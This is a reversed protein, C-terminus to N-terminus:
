FQEPPNGAPDPFFPANGPREPGPENSLIVDGGESDHVLVLGIAQEDVRDLDLVPRRLVHELFAESQPSDLTVASGDLFHLSVYRFDGFAPEPHMPDGGTGVERQGVHEVYKLLLDLNYTEGGIKALNM